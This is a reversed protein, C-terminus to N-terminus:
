LFSGVSQEEEDDQLTSGAAPEGIVTNMKVFKALVRDLRSFFTEIEKEELGIACAITFYSHPYHAMHAGWAHFDFGAINSQVAASGGIVVRCGSVNRQFLMSGLFSLNRAGIPLSDISVATSITNSLGPIVDLGYKQTIAQVALLLAPAVVAQRCRLLDTYGSEGISLLTIFLDLVPAISARGPYCSSIQKLFAASPSAVVAGGVPVMFNKDTSQVIADVRGIRCARTILKTILACQLGYANNIVHGVAHAACLKAIQDVQDPQRPAFCSTTSLVCLVENGMTELLRQLEPINTIMGQDTLLNEVIIPTLGAALISKFCSKQDIRPWLVYRRDPFQAKLATMSMALTMGTAMPFVICGLDPGLGALKLAHAALQNTLKYILSSGAAKPQVEVIDGSRGIGHSFHFHRRAVMPSFVRGEREGVGVNSPFNNSDMLALKNLVFEVTAEPWPEVPLKGHQLLAELCKEHSHISDFGQQVYTKPIYRQMLEQLDSM